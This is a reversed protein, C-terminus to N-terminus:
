TLLLEKRSLKRHYDLAFRHAEDMIKKILNKNNTINKLSSFKSISFQNLISFQFNLSKRSKGKAVAMIPISLKMEQLLKEAMRLHGTGGDLLILDPKLWNNKFRRSLAERMMGVDDSGEITKIRFKRYQSKDPENNKFVVMSGVAYQGSISSIDYAEIRFSKSNPIKLKSNAQFNSISFQFDENRSLLAIDQIHKLAFVKNRVDAAKEFEHRAAYEKMEKELKKILAKKKGELIMRIGRINKMYEAKAIAGAHPGPCRGLEFDLCGKETKQNNSHFPFIKRLMKLAIEMQKKSTYPGYIKAYRSGIKKPRKPRSLDLRKLIESKPNKALDTKRLILVRPYEECTIAFYCFSKDDKGMANYKPRLKKILRSELILAELVTDTQHIKIGAIQPLMVSVTERTDHGSFYSKVRDRLSAAKGVYLVQTKRFGGQASKGGYFVYVGPNKPLNQIKSKLSPM